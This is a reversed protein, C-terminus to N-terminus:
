RRDVITNVSKGDMSRAHLLINKGKIGSFDLKAEVQFDTMKMPCFDSVKRMIPLISITDKGNSLYQFRSFVLCDSPNHGKLIVKKPDKTKEIYDINAYIHEDIINIESEVINIKDNLLFESGQNVVIKYSGTALNNGGVM